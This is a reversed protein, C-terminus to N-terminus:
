PFLTYTCSEWLCFIVEIEVGQPLFLTYTCSRSIKGIGLKMDLYPLNSFQDIDRFGNGTSRFYVRAALAPAATFLM